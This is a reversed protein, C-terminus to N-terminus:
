GNTEEKSEPTTTAPPTPRIRIAEAEKGFAAVMSPYLTIRKGTWNNVEPGYMGAITTANTKNMVLRKEDIGAAEAKKQTEVFYMIPKRESGRETKLDEVVVRRITLTADKGNLDHAGLYQSPYLVKYHM